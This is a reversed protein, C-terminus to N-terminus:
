RLLSDLGLLKALMFNVELPRKSPKLVDCGRGSRELASM